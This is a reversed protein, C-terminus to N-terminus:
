SFTVPVAGTSANILTYEYRKNGFGVNRPRIPNDLNLKATATLLLAGNAPSYFRVTFTDTPIVAGSAASLEIAVSGGIQGTSVGRPDRVNAGNEFMDWQQPRAIMLQWGRVLAATASGGFDINASAIMAGPDVAGTGSFVATGDQLTGIGGMEVGIGGGAASWSLSLAGCRCGDLKEAGAEYLMLNWLDTDYNADPTVILSNLFAPTFWSVKALTSLSWGPTHKGQIYVAPSVANNVLPPYVNNEPKTIQASLYPIEIETGYIVAGSGSVKQLYAYGAFGKTVNSSM